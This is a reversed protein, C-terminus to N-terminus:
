RPKPALFMPAVVVVIQAIVEDADSVDISHGTLLENRLRNRTVKSRIGLACSMRWGIEAESLWPAIARFYPVFMRHHEIGELIQRYLEPKSSRQAMTTFHSLVRYRSTPDLGWRVSPGVLAVILDDVVPHNPAAKQVAVNLLAMREANLRKYVRTATAIILQEQSGFYYSVASATTGAAAAIARATLEDISKAECLLQECAGVLKNAVPNM